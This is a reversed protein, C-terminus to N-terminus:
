DRGRRLARGPLAGTPRGSDVVPTGAVIVHTIGIPDRTPDDVTADSRVSAPDFVVLDAISGKRIIGRNTLGLRAAPAGSMRRVAEELGLLAEDRVFQGLIRPYSGYTRPSPKAGVFVSDTGIMAGPHRLFRRTGELHPGPTIENPRLDEDLLLDCLADVPDTGADDILEGLTRGEWRLNEPRRLYGIRIDRLGGKGAFLQGRAKLDQRIRERVARDALREKTKTPGGAQVWIPMLILLRTSAWEYPYLDFTVDQGEAVADDVLALMQDPTGPFTQRHYFHTIHAPAEGRRGIEIAERFPDLFRDGLAYRVHTHYMGGLKAAENALEALEETTAYAGPPYDLGSSVGFAGEEMAERLRSRMASTAAPTTPVDDWGLAAIRLPTNGVLQAVNVATGSDYRALVDEVTAWDITIPRGKGGTGLAGDDDRPDGDLGANMHVMAELDAPNPYPVYSLGDVGVVETTVGQRVKPGHHPDALIMLASHSHLDIFGPAVVQGRADITRGANPPEEQADLIRVLGGEVAVTGPRGPAGTGDVITGGTILLDPASV